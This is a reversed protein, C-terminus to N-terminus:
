PPPGRHCQNLELNQLVAVPLDIMDTGLALVHRMCLDFRLAAGDFDGHVPTGAM